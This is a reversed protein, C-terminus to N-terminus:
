SLIKGKDVTAQSLGMQVAVHAQPMGAQIRQVVVLRGIPTLHADSHSMFGGKSLTM